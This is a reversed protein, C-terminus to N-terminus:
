RHVDRQTPDDDWQEAVLPGTSEDRAPGGLIAAVEALTMGPQIRAANAPTIATRSWLMWIGIVLGIVPALLLLFVRRRNMPETRASSIGVGIIACLLLYPWHKLSKHCRNCGM